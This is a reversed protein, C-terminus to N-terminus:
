LYFAGGLRMGLRQRLREPVLRKILTFAAVASAGKAFILGGGGYGARSDYCVSRAGVVVTKERNGSV